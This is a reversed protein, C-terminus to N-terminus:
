ETVAMTNESPFAKKTPFISIPATSINTQISSFLVAFSPNCLSQQRSGPFLVLVVTSCYESGTTNRQQLLSYVHGDSMVVEVAKRLASEFPTRFAGLTRGPCLDKEREESLGPTNVKNPGVNAIMDVHLYYGTM